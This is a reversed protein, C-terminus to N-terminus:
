SSLNSLQDYSKQGNFKRQEIAGEKCCLFHVSIKFFFLRVVFFYIQAPFLNGSFFTLFGNHSDSSHEDVRLFIISVLDVSSVKKPQQSKMTEDNENTKENRNESNVRMTSTFSLQDYAGSENLSSSNTVSRPGNTDNSSSKDDGMPYSYRLSFPSEVAKDAM